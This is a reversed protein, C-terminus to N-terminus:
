PQASINQHRQRPANDIQQLDKQFRAKKDAVKAKRKGSESAIHSDFAPLIVDHITRLVESKKGDDNLITYIRYLLLTLNARQIPTSMDAGAYRLAYGRLRKQQTPDITKGEIYALLIDKVHNQARKIAERNRTPNAFRVIRYLDPSVEIGFHLLTESTAPQEIDDHGTPLPVIVIGGEKGEHTQIYGRHGVLTGSIFEVLDNEEPDIDSPDYIQIRGQFYTVVEIFRAMTRASITYYSDAFSTGASTKKWPTLGIEEGIVIAQQIDAHIFIYGPICPQDIYSIRTALEVTNDRRAQRRGITKGKAPAKEEVEYEKREKRWPFFINDPNEQFYTKVHNTLVKYRFIYWPADASVIIKNDGAM